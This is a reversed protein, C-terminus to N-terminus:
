TKKTIIRVRQQGRVRKLASPNAFRRNNVKASSLKNVNQNLDSRRWKEEPSEFGEPRKMRVVADMRCLSDINKTRLETDRVLFLFDVFFPFRRDALDGLEDKINAGDYRAKRESEVLLIYPEPFVLLTTERLSFIHTQDMDSPPSFPTLREESKTGEGEKRGKVRKQLGWWGLGFDGGRAERNEERAKEREDMREVCRVEGM